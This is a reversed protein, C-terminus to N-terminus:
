NTFYKGCDGCLLVSNEFLCEVAPICDFTIVKWQHNNVKWERHERACQERHYDIEHRTPWNLEHPAAYKEDDVQQNYQDRRCRAKDDSRAKINNHTHLDSKFNEADNIKKM